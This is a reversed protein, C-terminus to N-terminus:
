SYMKFCYLYRGKWILFFPSPLCKWKWMYKQLRHCSWTYQGSLCVMILVFKYIVFLLLMNIAAGLMKCYRQSIVLLNELFYHIKILVNWIRGRCTEVFPQWKCPTTPAKYAVWCHETNPRIRIITRGTYDCWFDFYVVTHAFLCGVSV